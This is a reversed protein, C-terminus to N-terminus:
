NENRYEERLQSVIFSSVYKGNYYYHKRLVGDVKFGNREFFSAKLKDIEYIEAWLKNLNLVNYGYDLITSFISSAYYEDVWLDDKGIYFHVDAHRNIYDISTLGAVGVRNDTRRDIIIFMERSKDNKLGNHWDLIQQYNGM